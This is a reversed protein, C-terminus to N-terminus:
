LGPFNAGLLSRHMSPAHTAGDLEHLSHQRDRDKHHGDDPSRDHDERGLTERPESTQLTLEGLDLLVVGLEPALDLRQPALDGAEPVVGRGDLPDGPVVQAEDPLGLDDKLEGRPTLTGHPTVGFM